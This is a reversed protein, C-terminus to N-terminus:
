ELPRRSIAPRGKKHEEQGATGRKEGWEGEQGSVPNPMRPYWSSFDRRNSSVGQLPLGGYLETGRAGSGKFVAGMLAMSEGWGVRLV